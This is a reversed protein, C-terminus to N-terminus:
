EKLDSYYPIGNSNPDNTYTYSHLYIYRPIDASSNSHSSPSKIKEKISEKINDVNINKGRESLGQLCHFIFIVIFLLLAIRIFNSIKKM